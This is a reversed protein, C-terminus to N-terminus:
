KRNPLPCSFERCAPNWFERTADRPVHYETEIVARAFLLYRYLEEPIEAARYPAKKKTYLKTGTSAVCILGAEGPLEEPKILKAPCVFYFQNCYPLYARWKDDRLFDSRAVKIEYVTACPNAWSPKMAWADMRLHSKCQSPGNKCECVFIDRSHRCRLLELIEGAKANM